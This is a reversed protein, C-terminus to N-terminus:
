GMYIEIQYTMVENVENYHAEVQSHLRILSVEMACNTIAALEACSFHSLSCPSLANEELNPNPSSVILYFGPAM